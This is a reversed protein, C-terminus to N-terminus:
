VKKNGLQCNQTLIRLPDEDEKIANKCVDMHIIMNEAKLLAGNKLQGLNITIKTIPILSRRAENGDEDDERQFV